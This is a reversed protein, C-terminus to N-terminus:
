IKYIFLMRDRGQIDKKSDIVANPFVEKALRIIDNKQSEGIELAILFQNNVHSPAAKLIKKYYDLGDVGAYLALHPENNKVIEEIEENEKIYPPNSIIVDYKGELNELMDNQILTVEAKLRNANAKAVELAKKSIDLLTVDLFYNKKKLTIGICGSGTGLDIVKLQNSKFIKKIYSLTNEVLEETEFRPILVNENVQFQNGYFNVNGIVYQIPKNEKLLNIKQKYNNVIEEEVKNELYNLLELSNVGLLDALIMKAHTSHVFQKGYIILEEITM